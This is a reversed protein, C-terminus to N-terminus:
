QDNVLGTQGFAREPDNKVWRQDRVDSRQKKGAERGAPQKILRMVLQANEKKVEKKERTKTNTNEKTM